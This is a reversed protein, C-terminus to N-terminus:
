PRIAKTQGLIVYLTLLLAALFRSVHTGISRCSLFPPQLGFTSSRLGGGLPKNYMRKVLSMTISTPKKRSVSSKNGLCCSMRGVYRQLLVFASPIMYDPLSQRLYSRLEKVSFASQDAIMYAVLVKGTKSQLSYVRREDFCAAAERSM